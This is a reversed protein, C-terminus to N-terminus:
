VGPAPANNDQAQPAPETAPAAEAAEEAAPEEAEAEAEAEAEPAPEEQPAAENSLGAAPTAGVGTHILNDETLIDDLPVLEEGRDSILTATVFIILNQRDEDVTDHRFLQGIFPLHSLIPVGERTKTRTSTILGGM